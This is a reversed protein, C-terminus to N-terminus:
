QSEAEMWAILNLRDQLNRMGAFGMSTGPATGRPNELFANLAEVTWVDGLASLAGSYNFGDIGDIDRGVVGYLSPGVGHADPTMQHCARCQRWQASGAEADAEAYLAMVDIEEEEVPEAADTEDEGLDIIYAQPAAGYPLYLTDAVWKGLMFILLAACFGAVAKTIVMTDFM